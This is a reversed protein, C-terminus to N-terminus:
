FKSVPNLNCFSLIFSLFLFTSQVNNRSTVCDYKKKKVDDYRSTPTRGHESFGESILFSCTLICSEDELFLEDM